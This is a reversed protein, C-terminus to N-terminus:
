LLIIIVAILNNVMHAFITTYINYESKHYILSFLFGTVLYPISQLLWIGIGVSSISTSIMHPLAFLITSVIYSLVINKKGLFHFVSYRYIVEEIVPALLVVMIIVGWSSDSLLMLEITNQNVNSPALKSVLIDILNSILNFIIIASPIFIAYFKPKSLIKTFDDIFIKKLLIIMFIFIILYSLFNTYSLITMAANIYDEAVEEFDSLSLVEILKIYELDPNNNSYIIALFIALFGSLIFQMLVYIIIFLIIKKNFKIEEIKKNNDDNNNENNDTLVIDNDM